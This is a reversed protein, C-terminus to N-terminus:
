MYVNGLNEKSVRVYNIMIIKFDVDFLQLVQLIQTNQHCNKEELHTRDQRKM